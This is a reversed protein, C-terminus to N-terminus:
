KGKEAEDFNFYLGIKSRVPGNQYVLPKWQKLRKVCRILELDAEKCYGQMFNYSSIEGNKEITLELYTGGIEFKCSHQPNYHTYLYNAISDEVIKSEKFTQFQRPKESPLAKSLEERYELYKDQKPVKKFKRQYLVKGLSDYFLWTGVRNYHLHQDFHTPPSITDDYQGQIKLQGNQYWTKYPGIIIGACYNFEMSIRGNCYYRKNHLLENKPGPGSYIITGNECYEIQEAWQNKVLLDMEKIKGSEYYLHDLTTDGNFKHDFKKQGDEYYGEFEMKECKVIYSQEFKLQPEYSILWHERLQGNQYYWNMVNIGNTLGYIKYPVKMQKDFYLVFNGYFQRSVAIEVGKWSFTSDNTGLIEEKTVHEKDYIWAKQVETFEIQSYLTNSLILFISIVLFIKEKSM